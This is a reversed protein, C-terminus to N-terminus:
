QVPVPTRPVTHGTREAPVLALTTGDRVGRGGLPASLAVDVHDTLAIQPCVQAQSKTVLRRLTVTVTTPTEALQPKDIRANCGAVGVTYSITLTRGHSAYSNVVVQNPAVGAPLEPDFSPAPLPVRSPRFGGTPAPVPLPERTAGVGPALQSTVGIVMAVAAAAALPAAWHGLTTSM